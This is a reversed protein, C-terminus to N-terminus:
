MGHYMKVEKFYIVLVSDGVYWWHAPYVNKDEFWLNGSYILKEAIHMTQQPGIGLASSAVRLLEITNLAQPRQKSKEKEQVKIVKATQDGKVINYFINAIEKDFVRVREWEM